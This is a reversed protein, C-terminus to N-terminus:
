EFIKYLSSKIVNNIKWDNALRLKRCDASAYEYWSRCIYIIELPVSVWVISFIFSYVSVNLIIGSYSKCDIECCILFFWIRIQSFTLVLLWIYFCWGIKSTYSRDSKALTPVILVLSIYLYSSWLPDPCDRLYWSRSDLHWTRILAGLSRLM